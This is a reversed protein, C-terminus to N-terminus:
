VRQSQQAVQLEQEERLDQAKPWGRTQLATSSGQVKAPTDIFGAGKLAATIKGAMIDKKLGSGKLYIRTQGQLLADVRKKGRGSDSGQPPAENVVGGGELPQGPCWYGERTVQMACARRNAGGNVM